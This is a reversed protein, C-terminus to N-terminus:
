PRNHAEKLTAQARQFGDRDLDETFSFPEGSDAHLLGWGIVQETEDLHLSLALGRPHFTTRNILWLLGSDVLDTLPRGAPPPAINPQESPIDM